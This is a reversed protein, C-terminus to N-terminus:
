EIGGVILITHLIKYSFSIFFNSLLFAAKVIKPVKMKLKQIQSEM